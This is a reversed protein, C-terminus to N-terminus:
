NNLKDNYYYYLLIKLSKNKKEKFNNKKKEYVMKNYKTILKKTGSNNKYKYIFLTIIFKLAFM